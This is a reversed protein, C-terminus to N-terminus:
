ELTVLETVNAVDSQRVHFNYHLYQMDGTGMGPIDTRVVVYVKDESIYVNDLTLKISGSGRVIVKTILIANEEFFADDYLDRQKNIRNKKYEWDTAELLSDLYDDYEQKSRIIFSKDEFLNMVGKGNEYALPSATTTYYEIKPMYSKVYAREMEVYLNTIRPEQEKIQKIKQHMTETFSDRDFYVGIMQIANYADVEAGAFVNRMDYKEIIEDAPKDASANYELVYTCYVRDVQRYYYTYEPHEQHLKDIEDRLGQEYDLVVQAVGCIYGCVTCVNEDNEYIHEETNLDFKCMNWTCTVNRWHSIANYQWESPIHKHVLSTCATFSCLGVVATFLLAWLRKMISVGSKDNKARLGIENYCLIQYFYIPYPLIEWREANMGVLSM